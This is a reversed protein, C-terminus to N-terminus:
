VSASGGVGVQVNAGWKGVKVSARSLFFITSATCTKCMVEGVQVSACVQVLVGGWGVQM